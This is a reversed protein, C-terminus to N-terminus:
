KPQTAWDEVISGVAGGVSAAADIVMGCNEVLLTQTAEQALEAATLASSPDQTAVLTTAYVM